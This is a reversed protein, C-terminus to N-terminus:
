DKRIRLCYTVKGIANSICLINDKNNSKNWLLWVCETINFVGIVRNFYEELSNNIVDFLGGLKIDKAISWLQM